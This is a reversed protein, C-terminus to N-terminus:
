GKALTKVFPKKDIYTSMAAARQKAAREEPTLKKEEYVGQPYLNQRSIFATYFDGMAEYLCSKYHEFMQKLQLYEHEKCNFVWYAYAGSVKRKAGLDTEHNIVYAL